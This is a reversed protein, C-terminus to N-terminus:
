LTETTSERGARADLNSTEGLIDQDLNLANGGDVSLSFLM